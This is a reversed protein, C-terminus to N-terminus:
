KETTQEMFQLEHLRRYVGGNELLGAHTGAEVIRGQSLVLIKDARRVTGLRHAIVFATRGAMLNGLAQQVLLESESDLESTAEDLILIPPNKLVARAIALRQRQGGSLRAGREGIATDYGQPLAVIFDHAMAVRAAELLQEDSTGALGYCINNRVTDNFLITEQTVMGIQGRLSSLTVDRVDRGDILVRGATVDFFRPILNVITTKGAGSPGVIAVVEGRAARFSIGALLPSEHEYQFSVDDFVIAECFPPLAAAGPRDQVERRVDLYEFVKASAGLAQQFANNIGALRKVPEYMKLLAYVFVLFAGPTLVDAKIRDRGVWLMIVIMLAGLLEMLPSTLAQARVYRLNVRFM